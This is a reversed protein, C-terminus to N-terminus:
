KPLLDNEILARGISRAYYKMGFVSPHTDNPSRKIEALRNPAVEGYDASYLVAKGFAAKLSRVLSQDQKTGIMPKGKNLEDFTSLHILAMPIGLAKLSDLNKAFRADHLFSDLKHRPNQTPLLRKYTTHFPTGHVLRDFLFSRDLTMPSPKGTIRAKAERVTKEMELLVPDNSPGDLAQERACWEKTAGSHVIATDTGDSLSPNPTNVQTTLVRERGDIVTPTRFFRDRTFDDTIFSFIVLDPKWKPAMYRALDVMHLLGTGDRGFNVVHTSRGTADALYEQLFDPWSVGRPDAGTDIQATFSDGFVLIKLDASEYDGRILGMNGRDNAPWYWCSRVKGGASSGGQITELGYTYGYVPHHKWRSKEMFWVAPRVSSNDESIFEAPQQSTLVFRYGIECIVVGILANVCVIATYLLGKKM